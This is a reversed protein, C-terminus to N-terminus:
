HLLMMKKTVVFKGAEAKYFYIGSSVAKGNKDTGDWTITKVGAPANGSFTKVVQGSINYITLRYDSAVPLALELNTRANFPNPYNQSLGFATPLVAAKATIPLNQGQYNSAQGEVFEVTGEVPLVFTAEGAPVMGGKAESNILVRLTGEAANARFKMGEINTSTTIEGATNGSYKFNLLLGGLEYASATTIKLENGEQQWSLNVTATNPNLKPLPQADHTLVRILYVLDGVSLILGDGNIDSAALQSQRYTPNSSLVSSGYIFYNAYLVADGIEYGRGNLNLDGRDDIQEATPIDIGGNRFCLKKRPSPKGPGGSSRDCNAVNAPFETALNIPDGEFTYLSDVVWLMNGTSDSVTNDTCDFW